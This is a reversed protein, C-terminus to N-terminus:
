TGGDSNARCHETETAPAGEVSCQRFLVVFKLWGTSEYGRTCFIPASWITSVWLTPLLLRYDGTMETVMLITSFPANACAAFFGAMGVIAFASPHGGLSPFWQSFLKGVGAGVAGGIVMSPGFVGGSGGSGITLSTTIIKAGAIGFLLPVSLVAVNDLASQLFGYGSGWRHWLM